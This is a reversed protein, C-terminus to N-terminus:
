QVEYNYLLELFFRLATRESRPPPLADSLGDVQQKSRSVLLVSVLETIAWLILRFLVSGMELVATIRYIKEWEEYPWSGETLLTVLSYTAPTWNGVLASNREKSGDRLGVWDGMSTIGWVWKRLTVRGSCSATWEDGDLASTLFTYLMVEKAVTHNPAWDCPEVRLACHYNNTGGALLILLKANQRFIM